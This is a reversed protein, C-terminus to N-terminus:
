EQIAVRTPKSTEAKPITVLLVGKDFRATAKDAEVEAPLALSRSFSGYRIERSLVKEGEKKESEERKHGRITLVGGELTLEVDKPDIGPLEAQVTVAEGSDKVDMSPNLGTQALGPFGPMFAGPDRMMRELVEFPSVIGAPETKRLAPFFREFM